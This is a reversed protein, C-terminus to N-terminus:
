LWLLEGISPRRYAIAGNPPSPWPGSGGRPHSVDIGPDVAHHRRTVESFVPAPLVVRVGELRGLPRGAPPFAGRHGRRTDTPRGHPGFIGPSAVAVNGPAVTADSPRGRPGFIDYLVVALGAHRAHCQLAAPAPRRPWLGEGQMQPGGTRGSPAPRAPRRPCSSSPGVSGLMSPRSAEGAAPSTAAINRAAVGPIGRRADSPRRHPGFICPSDPV